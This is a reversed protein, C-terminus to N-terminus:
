LAEDASVLTTTGLDSLLMDRRESFLAWGEGSISKSAPSVIDLPNVYQGNKQVRFCVHAGTSLGTNGVYGIIQKQTVRQGVRLDREFRSLHAYYSVYGNVHKVKVLNGSAGAWGRFIVIGDSVAWLPTGHPAVYDIGRHPRVVNLIPHRRANSFSSSIRSFKLPSVLFAREISSGDARYYGGSGDDNEYYVISYNGQSGRYRAALIRGPRVYVDNGDMDTGYLREYLVQFDDGPRVSRTFDIDWAFVGAFETALQTREGMNRIADYLSSEIVGSAKAVQSRLPALDEQAVYHEGERHIQYSKVPSTFYRFDLVTGQADQDLRYHDGPHSRRFDFIPSMENAILHVTLASVGQQRLATSLSQGAAIVGKTVVTLPPASQWSNSADESRYLPLTDISVPAYEAVLSSAPDALAAAGALGPKTAGAGTANTPEVIPSRAGFGASFALCVILLALGGRTIPALPRDQESRPHTTL